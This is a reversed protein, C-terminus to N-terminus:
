SYKTNIFIVNKSGHENQNLHKIQPKNHLLALTKSKRKEHEKLTLYKHQLSSCPLTGNNTITQLTTSTNFAIICLMVVNIYCFNPWLLILSM